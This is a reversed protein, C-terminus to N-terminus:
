SGAKAAGKFAATQSEHFGERVRKQAKKWQKHPESAPETTECGHDLAAVIASYTKLDLKLNIEM